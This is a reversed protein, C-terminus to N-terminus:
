RFFYNVGIRVTNVHGTTSTSLLSLPTTNTHSFHLYLYQAQVAWHGVLSAELDGGVTWGASTYSTDEVTGATANNLRGVLQTRSGNIDHWALGGNADVLAKGLAHGISGRVTGVMKTDATSSATNVGAANFGQFSTSLSSGDVDGVIGVVWNSAGKFNFGAQAGGTVGDGSASTDTTVGNATDTTTSAHHNHAYGLNGGVYFGGWDPDAAFAARISSLVMVLVFVCAFRTMHMEM